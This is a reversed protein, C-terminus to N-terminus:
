GKCSFAAPQSPQRHREARPLQPTPLRHTHSPGSILQSNQQTSFERVRRETETKNLTSSLRDAESRAMALQLWVQLTVGRLVVM